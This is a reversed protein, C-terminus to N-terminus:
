LQWRTVDKPFQKWAFVVSPRFVHVGSTQYAEPPPAYGYKEQSAEALEESLSRETHVLETDGHLIVVDLGNELHVCTAPNQELNRNRRTKSSGGYYLRDGLWLGDVPTAHPRGQPDVTAVWYYRAQMMRDVVHSWPLLGKKDKPVGYDGPMSPRSAVPGRKRGSAETPSAGKEGM